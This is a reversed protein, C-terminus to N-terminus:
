ISCRPIVIRLFMGLASTLPAARFGALAFVTIGACSIIRSRIAGFFVGEMLIRCLLISFGARMLSRCVSLNLIVIIHRGGSVLCAEVVIFEDHWLIGDFLLM